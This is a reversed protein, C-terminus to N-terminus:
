PLIGEGGRAGEGEGYGTLEVYGVGGGSTGRRRARVTVAGEWYRFSVNM